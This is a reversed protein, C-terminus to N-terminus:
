FSLCLGIGSTTFGMNLQVSNKSEIESNYIRVSKKISGDGVLILIMGTATCISSIALADKNIERGAISKGLQYGMIFAAPLGIVNGITSFARGTNYKGLAENTGDYLQRVQIPTLKKDGLYIGTSFFGNKTSLPINSDADADIFFTTEGNMYVIKFIDRTVIRYVTEEQSNFKSCKVFIPTVELIICEIQEGNNKVITDQSYATFSVLIM